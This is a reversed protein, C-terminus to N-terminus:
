SVEDRFSPKRLSDRVRGSCRLSAFRHIKRRALAGCRAALVFSALRSAPSSAASPTTFLAPKVLEARNGASNMGSDAVPLHAGRSFMSRFLRARPLAISGLKWGRLDRKVTEVTTVDATNGPLVPL